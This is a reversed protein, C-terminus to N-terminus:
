EGDLVNVQEMAHDLCALLQFVDEVRGHVQHGHAVRLQSDHEGVPREDHAGAAREVGDAALRQMVQESRLNALPDGRQMLSAPGLDHRGALGVVLPETAGERDRETADATLRDAGGADHQNRVIDGFAGAELGLARCEAFAERLRLFQGREPLEDASDSIFDVVRQLGDNAM